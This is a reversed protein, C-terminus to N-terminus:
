DYNGTQIEDYYQDAMYQALIKRDKMSIITNWPEDMRNEKVYKKLGNEVLYGWLKPALKHDYKGAKIKKQINKIIPLFQSRYLQGDNEISLMIERVSPWDDAMHKYHDDGQFKEEAEKLKTKNFFRTYSM